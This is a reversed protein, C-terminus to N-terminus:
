TVFSPASKNTIEFKGGKHLDGKIRGGSHGFGDICYINPGAATFFYQSSFPKLTQKRAREGEGRGEEEYGIFRQTSM